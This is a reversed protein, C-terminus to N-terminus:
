KLECGSSKLVDCAQTAPALNSQGVEMFGYSADQPMTCSDQCFGDKKLADVNAKTSWATKLKDQLSATMTTPNIAVTMWHFPESSWIEKATNLKVKGKRATENMAVSATLVADCKGAGFDEAAANDSAAPILTVGQPFSVGAKSLEAGAVLWGYIGPEKVSCVKKGKIGALDTIGSATTVYITAKPRPDTGKADQPVAVPLFAETKKTAIVPLTGAVSMHVEGQAQAKALEASGPFIKLEVKKGTEKELMAVIAAFQDKAATKGQQTVGFILTDPDSAAAVRTAGNQANPLPLAASCGVLLLVSAAVAAHRRM